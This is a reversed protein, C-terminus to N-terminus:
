RIKLTEDYVIIFKQMLGLFPKLMQKFITNHLRSLSIDYKLLEQTCYITGTYIVECLSSIRIKVSLALVM